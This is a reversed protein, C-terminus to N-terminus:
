IESVSQSAFSTTIWKSLDFLFLRRHPERKVRQQRKSNDAQDNVVSDSAKFARHVFHVRVFLMLLIQPSRLVRIIQGFRFIIALPGVREDSYYAVAVRHFLRLPM